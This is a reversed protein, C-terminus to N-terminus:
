VGVYTIFKSEKLEQGKYFVLFGRKEVRKYYSIILMEEFNGKIKYYNELKLTREKVFASVNKKFKNLILKSSFVLEFDKYYYIYSSETLDYYIM